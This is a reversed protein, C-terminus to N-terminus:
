ISKIWGTLTTYRDTSCNTIQRNFFGSEVCKNYTCCQTIVDSEFVMLRSLSFESCKTWLVVKTLMMMLRIKKASDQDQWLEISFPFLSNWKTQWIQVKIGVRWVRELTLHVRLETDKSKPTMIATKGWPPPTTLRGGWVDPLTLMM